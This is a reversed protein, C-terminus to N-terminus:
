ICYRFGRLVFNYAMLAIRDGDEGEAEGRRSSASRVQQHKPLGYHNSPQHINSTTRIEVEAKAQGNIRAWRNQSSMQWRIGAASPGKPSQSGSEGEFVRRTMTPTSTSETEGREQKYLLIMGRVSRAGCRWKKSM